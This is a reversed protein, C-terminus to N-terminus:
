SKRWNRCCSEKHPWSRASSAGISTCNSLVDNLRRAKRSFPGASNIRLVPVACEKSPLKNPWGFRMSIANSPRGSVESRSNPSSRAATFSGFHGELRRSANECHGSHACNTLTAGLRTRWALKLSCIRLPSATSRAISGMCRHQGWSTARKIVKPM